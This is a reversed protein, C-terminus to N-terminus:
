FTLVWEYIWLDMYGYIWIDMYGYIWLWWRRATSLMRLSPVPPSCGGLMASFELPM